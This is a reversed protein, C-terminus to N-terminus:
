QSAHAIVWGHQMLVYSLKVRSGDCYIVYGNIGSPLALILTIILCENVKQFSNEYEEIWVFKVGKWMLRTLPIIIRSFEKVFECYYGAM